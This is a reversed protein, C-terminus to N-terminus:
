PQFQSGDQNGGKNDQNDGPAGTKDDSTKTTETSTITSTITFSQLLTSGGYICYSGGIVIDSCSIIISQCTKTTTLTMYITSGTSDTLYLITGASISQEPAFSIVCQKSDSTPTEVMGLCGVAFLKGGNVIIGGNSDMSADSGNTPGYVYVEGGSILITGNSDIGDGSASVSLYGGSIILYCESDNLDSDTADPNAANIGDDSADITINGAYIEIKCAEVGEYCTSIEIDTTDDDTSYIKLLYDAHMGDDGTSIDFNGSEIILYGNSHIADDYSNIDFDGGQIVIAYDDVDLEQADTYVSEGWDILGAKLAKGGLDDDVEGSSPVGGYTTIDYSGGVLQIFTDAQIGDGASTSSSTDTEIAIDSNYCYVFGSDYSFTPESTTKKYNIEAHIGDKTSTIDLTSNKIVVSEGKIGHASSTITISPTSDANSNGLIFVTGDAEIANDSSSISLSGTGTITVDYDSGIAASSSTSTISNNSGILVITTSSQLNFAKKTGEKTIKAGSLYIIVDSATVKIQDTDTLSISSSIVYNGSTSITTAAAITTYSDPLTTEASGNYTASEDSDAYTATVASVTESITDESATPTSTSTQGGGLYDGPNKWVSTSSGCASFVMCPVLVFVALLIKKFNKM